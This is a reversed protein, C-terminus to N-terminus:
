QLFPTNYLAINRMIMHEPDEGIVSRDTKMVYAIRGRFREVLCNTQPSPPKTLLHKM